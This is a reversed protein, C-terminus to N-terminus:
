KLTEGDKPPNDNITAMSRMIGMVESGSPNLSLRTLHHEDIFSHNLDNSTNQGFGNNGRRDRQNDLSDKNDKTVGTKQM